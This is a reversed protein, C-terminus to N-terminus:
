AWVNLYRFSKSRAEAAGCKILLPAHDSRGHMLHSVKTVRFLDNWVSNILARDLRQWVRGNTWTFPQGDFSVSSLVCNFIADSFEEMNRGNPPAGGSYESAITIVNFDGAVMWPDAFRRVEEM